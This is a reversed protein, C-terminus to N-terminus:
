SFLGAGGLLVADDKFMAEKVLKRDKHAVPLVTERLTKELEPMFFPKLAMMGGGLLIMEVNLLTHVNAIALGLYRGVRAIAELALEDKQEAAKGIIPGEIKSINNSVLENIITKRGAKIQSKVYNEMGTGSAYAELCGRKGCGCEPGKLNMCMHGMEGASNTSGTLLQGNIVFGSGLGTGVFINGFSSLGRGNGYKYEAITAARVDNLVSVPLSVHDKVASGLPEHEWGLNPSFIVEGTLSDIQGAAGIGVGQILRKDVGEAVKDFAKAIVSVVSKFGKCAQTPFIVKKVIYGAKCLGVAIKTGGLDVGVSYNNTAM